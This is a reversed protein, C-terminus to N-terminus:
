VTEKKLILPAYIFLRAMLSDYLNFPKNVIFILMSDFRDIGILNIEGRTDITQFWDLIVHIQEPSYKGSLANRADVEFKDYEVQNM